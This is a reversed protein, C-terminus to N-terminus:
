LSPIARRYAAIEDHLVSAQGSVTISCPVIGNIDSLQLVEYRTAGEETAILRKWQRGAMRVTDATGGEPVPLKSYLSTTPSELGGDVWEWAGFTYYGRRTLIEGTDYELWDVTWAGRPWQGARIGKELLLKKDWRKQYRQLETVIFRASNALTCNPLDASAYIWPCGGGSDTATTITVGDTDSYTKWGRSQEYVTSYYTRLKAYLDIFSANSANLAPAGPFDPVHAWQPAASAGVALALALCSRM